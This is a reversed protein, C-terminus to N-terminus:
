SNLLRISASRIPEINSAAKARNEAAKSFRASTTYPFCAHNRAGSAACRSIIRRLAPAWRKRQCPDRNPSAASARRMAGPVRSYTCRDGKLRDFLLEPTTALALLRAVGPVPAAFLDLGGDIRSPGSKDETMAPSSGAMWSKTAVLHLFVHIGPVLGPMVLSGLDIERGRCADTESLGTLCRVCIRVGATRVAGPNSTWNRGGFLSPAPFAPHSTCGCGRTCTFFCV